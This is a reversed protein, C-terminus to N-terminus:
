GQPGGTVLAPKARRHKEIVIVSDYFHIAPLFEGMGSHDGGTHYWSHQDDILRKAFEIATGQRGVAGEWDPWYSTHTDEIIYLGGEKLLPFLAHFSAVQHHGIHSGDDLIVDPAGFEKVVAALFVGDAQSGIRVHNPPTVRDACKPDIDIGVITAASGFYSRWMDLSGGDLVGIELFTLPTARYGALWKEYIGFYQTWKHAPRHGDALFHKLIESPDTALRAAMEAKNIGFDAIRPTAQTLGLSHLVLYRLKNLRASFDM